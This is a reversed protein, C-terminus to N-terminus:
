NKIIKDNINQLIHLHERWYMSMCLNAAFVMLFSEEYFFSYLLYFHLVLYKYSYRNLVVEIYLGPHRARVSLILLTTYLALIIAQAQTFIHMPKIAHQSHIWIFFYQIITAVWIPNCLVFDAWDPIRPVPELSFLSHHCISCRLRDRIIEGGQIVWLRRCTTHIYKVSGTCRCPSVMPEGDTELCFRCQM